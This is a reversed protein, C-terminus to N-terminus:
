VAQRVLMLTNNTQIKKHVSIVNNLEIKQLTFYKEHKYGNTNIKNKESYSCNDTRSQSLEKFCQDKELNTM